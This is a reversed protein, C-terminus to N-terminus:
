DPAHLHARRWDSSHAQAAEDEGQDLRSQKERGPTVNRARRLSNEADTRDGSAEPTPKM